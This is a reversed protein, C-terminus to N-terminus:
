ISNAAGKKNKKQFQVKFLVWNKDQSHDLTAELQQTLVQILTAPLYKETNILKEKMEQNLQQISFKATVENEDSINLSLRIKDCTLTGNKNKLRSLIENIMLGLPVAQNINLKLEECEIEVHPYGNEGNNKFHIKQLRHLVSHFPINQLSQQQFLLEHIEAITFIRNRTAELPVTNFKQKYEQMELEILGIILALNNKVRHHLESLLVQKEQNSKELKKRTNVQQSVDIAEVFIGTCTGKEDTLPKYIFNRYYTKKRGDHEVVFPVENGKHLEGTQYVKDLLEFFGQEQLEPLAGKVPKGVLNRDGVLKRYEKNAYTYRHEPGKLICIASPAELLIEELQEKEQETQQLSSKEQELLEKILKRSNRVKLADRRIFFYLVFTTVLVFGWGKYIQLTLLIEPDTVMQNALRDSFFIWIASVLFYIIAIKIEYREFSFIKKM